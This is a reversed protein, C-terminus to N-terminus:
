LMKIKLQNGARNVADTFYVSILGLINDLKSTPTLIIKYETTNDLLTSGDTILSGFNIYDGKDTGYNTPTGKTNFIVKNFKLLSNDYNLKFQTGVLEQTLPNVKVTVYVTDNILETVISSQIENSVAMSRVGMAMTTLNNTPPTTSHSLNVDGKWAVAINLTDISKGTNIDFSYSSGLYSSYTAWTSKGITNYTATPILKLTKNLNFTDVINKKGTLHQLLIFCDSEDLVGDNNIDANKYQIGYTFENGSQNGLIGGNAFEKFALYVDTVTLINSYLTSLTNTTTLTISQPKYAQTVAFTIDCAFAYNGYGANRVYQNTSTPLSTLANPITYQAWTGDSTTFTVPGTYVDLVSVSNVTNPVVNGFKRMDVYLTSVGNNLNIYSWEVGGGVINAKYGTNIKVSDLSTTIDVSGATSLATSGISFKTADIAPNFNFNVIAKKTPVAPAISTVEDAQISWTTQSPRKWMVQLGWGGGVQQFRAVFTYSQGAILNVTGYHLGGFGHPGYFSTVVNGNIVVDVGDDGDVGFSYIGTEKPVFYGYTKIGFYGAGNPVGTLFTNNYNLTAAATGTGSKYITTGNATNFMNDFDTGSNAYANRGGSGTYSYLNYITYNLYGVGTQSYTVM